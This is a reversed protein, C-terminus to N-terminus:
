DEMKITTLDDLNDQLAEKIEPIAKDIAQEDTRAVQDSLASIKGMVLDGSGLLEVRLIVNLKKFGEVKFYQEETIVESRLTYKPTAKKSVIVVKLPSLLDILTHSLRAPLKKGKTVMAMKLPKLKNIKAQLDTRKVKLKLPMQAVLNYRESYADILALNKLIKPYTFRSNLEMAKANEDDLADIKEKFLKATKSRDLSMLVYTHGDITEQRKIELGQILESTEESVTKNTWEDFSGEAPNASLQTSSSSIHSTSKVNTQFFKAVESRAEALADALTEGDGVSCLYDRDCGPNTKVYDSFWDPGKAESSVSTLLLFALLFKM